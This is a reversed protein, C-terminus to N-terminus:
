APLEGSRLWMRMGLMPAALWVLGWLAWVTATDHIVSAVAWAFLGAGMQGLVTALAVIWASHLGPLRRRRIWGLVGLGAAVVVFYAAVVLLMLDFLEDLGCLFTDAEAETDCAADIRRDMVAIVVWEVAVLCTTWTVTYAAAPWFWRRSTTPTTAAQM